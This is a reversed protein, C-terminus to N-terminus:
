MVHFMFDRNNLVNGPIELIEEKRNSTDLGPVRLIGARNKKSKHSKYLFVGTLIIFGVIIVSVVSASILISKNNKPPPEGNVFTIVMFRGVVNAQHHFRSMPIKGTVKPISWTMSTLDLVHLADAPDLQFGFYAIQHNPLLTAGCHVREAPANILSGRTFGLNVVDFIVMSNTLNKNYMGGFLYIKENVSIGKLNSKRNNEVNFKPTKIWTNNITNFMYVLDMVTNKVIPNGGYLILAGNSTGSAAGSHAPVNNNSTIDNWFLKDTNFPVTMDLYLFQKGIAEENAKVKLDHIGGIVYLKNNVLTTTHLSRQLTQCNVGVSLQIILVWSVIYLSFSKTM